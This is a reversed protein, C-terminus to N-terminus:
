RAAAAPVPKPNPGTWTWGHILWGGAAKKLTVTMQAKEAMAKGGQKFSYVAPAIVYAQDGSVLERTPPSLTVKEDTIGNKKSDAELAAAWTQFAQPGTWQYPPVEDLIALDATAAHTAAAAAADGKNFSDIFKQVTVFPKEDASGVAAAGLVLLAAVAVTLNRM